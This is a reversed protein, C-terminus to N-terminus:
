FIILVQKCHASFGSHPKKFNFTPSKKLEDPDPHDFPFCEELDGDIGYAKCTLGSFHLWCCLLRVKRIVPLYSVLFRMRSILFVENVM